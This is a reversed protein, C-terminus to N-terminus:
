AGIPQHEALGKVDAKPFGVAVVEGGALAEAYGRESCLLFGRDREEWVRLVGTKGGYGQVLVWDGRKYM